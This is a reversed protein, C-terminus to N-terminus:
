CGKSSRATARRKIAGRRDGVPEAGEPGGGVRVGRLKSSALPRSALMKRTRARQLPVRYVLSPVSTSVTVMWQTTQLGVTPSTLPSRATAGEYVREASAAPATAYQTHWCYIFWHGPPTCFLRLSPLGLRPPSPPISPAPRARTGPVWEFTVTFLIRPRGAAPLLRPNRRLPEGARRCRAFAPM